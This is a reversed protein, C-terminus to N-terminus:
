GTRPPILRRRGANAPSSKPWGDAADPAAPQIIINGDARIELRALQGSKHRLTVAVQGDGVLNLTEGVRLDHFTPM